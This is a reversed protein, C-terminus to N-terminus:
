KLDGKQIEIHDALVYCKGGSITNIMGYVRVRMGEKIYKIVSERLPEVVAEVEIPDDIDSYELDFWALCKDHSTNKVTGELLIQNLNKM